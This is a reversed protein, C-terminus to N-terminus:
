KALYRSDGPVSPAPRGSLRVMDWIAKKLAKVDAVGERRWFGEFKQFNSGKPTM